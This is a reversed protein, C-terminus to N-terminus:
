SELCEVSNFFVEVNGCCKYLINLTTRNSFNTDFLIEPTQFIIRFLIRVNQLEKKSLIVERIRKILFYQTLKFDQNSRRCYTSFNKLVSKKNEWYFFVSKSDAITLYVLFVGINNPWNHLRTLSSFMQSLNKDYESLYDKNNQIASSLSRKHIRYKYLSHNVHGM